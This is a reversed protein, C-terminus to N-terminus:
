VLLSVLDQIVKQSVFYTFDTRDLHPLFLKYTETRDKIRISYYVTGVDNGDEGKGPGAVGTTSLAIDTDFVNQCGLAMEEAVQESVVSFQDITQQSVNLLKTKKDTAYAIIGGLYYKSSGPNSTILKGLEGGTCSEATSITLKRETLLEGLIKEIKDEKTAIVNEKM